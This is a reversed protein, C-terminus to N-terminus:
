AFIQSWAGDSKPKFLIVRAATNFTSQFRAHISVPFWTLPSCQYHLHSITAQFLINSHHHIRSINKFASGAPNASLNSPLPLVLLFELTVGISRAEPVSHYIHPLVFLLLFPLSSLLLSSHLIKRQLNTPTLVLSSGVHLKLYQYHNLESIPYLTGHHKNEEEEKFKCLWIFIRKYTDFM